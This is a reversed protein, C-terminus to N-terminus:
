PDSRQPAVGHAPSVALDGDVTLTPDDTLLSITVLSSGWSFPASFHAVLSLRPHEPRWGVTVLHSGPQNEVIKALLARRTEPGFCLACAYIVDADEFDGQRFDQHYFLVSEDCRCLRALTRGTAIFSPIVDLALVKAGSLFHFLFAARGRGCGLDYILNAQGLPPLHELIRRVTSLPTEGFKMEEFVARTGKSARWIELSVFRFLYFSFFLAEWHCIRRWPVKIRARTATLVGAWCLFFTSRSALWGEKSL